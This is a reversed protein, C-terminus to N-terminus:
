VKSRERGSTGVPHVGVLTPYYARGPGLRQDATREERGEKALCLVVAEKDQPLEIPINRGDKDDKWLAVIRCGCEGQQSRSLRAMGLSTVTLVSCGPDDALVTAYRAPWRQELQPGDMLLAIVLNPGVARILESVPELRALDECILTTATLWDEVGFFWLVRPGVWTDEWWFKTPDLRSGIGYQQIQRRDLRWRHHKPQRIEIVEDESVPLSLASSNVAHEVGSTEDVATARVGAALFAGKKHCTDALIQFTEEDVSSEPLIVGDVPGVQEESTCILDDIWTSIQNPDRRAPDYRFLGFDRDKTPSTVVRFERPLVELPWPVVLLNLSSTRHSRGEQPELDAKDKPHHLQVNFWLPQVKGGDCLALHHSLSRATLGSQPTHLKPLVVLRSPDVEKCLSAPGGSGSRAHLRQTTRRAFTRLVQEDAAKEPYGSTSPVRLGARESAEDAAVAIKVLAECLEIKTPIEEVPLDASERVVDWWRYVIQPPRSRSNLARKRWASGLRRMERCWATAGGSDIEGEVPPWDERLVTLYGGSRRLLAMTIAFADPPWHPLLMTKGRVKSPALFQLFTRVTLENSM